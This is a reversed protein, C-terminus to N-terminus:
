TSILFCRTIRILRHSPFINYIHMAAVTLQLITYRTESKDNQETSAITKFNLKEKKKVNYKLYYLAAKSNNELKRRCTCKKTRRSM